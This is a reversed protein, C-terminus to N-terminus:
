FVQGVGTAYIILPSLLGLIYSFARPPAAERMAALTLSTFILHTTLLLLAARSWCAEHLLYLLTTKDVHIRHKLTIIHAASSNCIGPKTDSHSIASKAPHIHLLITSKLTLNSLHIIQTVDQTPITMHIGLTISQTLRISIEGGALTYPSM